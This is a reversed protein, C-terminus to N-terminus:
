DSRSIKGKKSFKHVCSTFVWAMCGMDFRHSPSVQSSSMVSNEFDGDFARGGGGARGLSCSPPPSRRTGSAGAVVLVTDPSKVFAEVRDQLVHGQSSHPDETVVPLTFRAGPPPRPYRPTSTVAGTM